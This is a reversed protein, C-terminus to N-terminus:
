ILQMLHTFFVDPLVDTNNYTTHIYITCSNTTAEVLRSLSIRLHMLITLHQTIYM